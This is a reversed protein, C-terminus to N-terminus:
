DCGAYLKEICSQSLNEVRDTVKLTRLDFMHILFCERTCRQTEGSYESKVDFLIKCKAIGIGSQRTSGLTCQMEPKGNVTRVYAISESGNVTEGHLADVDYAINKLLKINVPQSFASFTYFTM